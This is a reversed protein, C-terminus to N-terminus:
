QARFYKDPDALAGPTWRVSTQADAAVTLVKGLERELRESSTASIQMFAEGMKLTSVVDVQASKKDAALAINRIEYEYEITLMGGAKEGVDEFFKHQTELQECAAKKDLTVDQAQGGMRSKLHLQLKRSYLECQAQVDRSLVAHKQAMYYDRVMQEDLKRGGILWYWGAAALALVILILKMARLM